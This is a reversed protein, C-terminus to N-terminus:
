NNALALCSCGANLLADLTRALISYVAGLRLSLIEEATELFVDTVGEGGNCLSLGFDL